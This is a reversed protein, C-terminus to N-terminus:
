TFELRLATMRRWEVSGTLAIIKADISHAEALACAGGGLPSLGRGRVM